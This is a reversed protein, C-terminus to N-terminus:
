QLIKMEKLKRVVTQLLGQLGEKDARISVPEGDEVRFFLATPLKTLQREAATLLPIISYGQDEQFIDFVVDGGGTINDLGFAALPLSFTGVKM